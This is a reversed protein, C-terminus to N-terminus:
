KNFYMTVDGNNNFEVKNKDVSQDLFGSNNTNTNSNIIIKLKKYILPGGIIIGAISIIDAASSVLDKFNKIPYSWDM